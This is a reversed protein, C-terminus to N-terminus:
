ECEGVTLPPTMNGISVVRIRQRAEDLGMRRYGSPTEYVHLGCRHLPTMPDTGYEPAVVSLFDSVRFGLECDVASLDTFDNPHGHVQGVLMLGADDARDTLESLLAPDIRISLPARRIGPGRLIAARTIEINSSQEEAEEAHAFWLCLGERGYRGDRAMEQLSQQWVFDAINWTRLAIM